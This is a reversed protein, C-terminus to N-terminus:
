SSSTRSEQTFWGVLAAIFAFLALVLFLAIVAHNMAVVQLDINSVQYLAGTLREGFGADVMMEAIDPHLDGGRIILGYVYTVFAGLGAVAFLGAGRAVMNNIGSAVGSSHDDVSNLIATSIPSAIGGIGLGLMVMSPLLGLWYEQKAVAYAIALFSFGVVLSGAVLLERGGFRDMVRGVLPSAFAITLSFPVFMGGAFTPPLKWAVIVLMPLFFFTAGMGAWVLFTLLNGGSFARSRFLSLDVMPIRGQKKVRIEWAIAGGGVVLGGIVLWLGFPEQIFTLGVAILGLATTLFVAGVWDLEASRDKRAIDTPIKRLVWMVVLAIPLNLAFIWRWVGEGGYTLFLGGLFPGAATTISSASVWLGMAKGRENRPTNLAILAMSGPLMIAAGIGQLGRFIILSYITPALACALSALCFWGVGFSFVRKVGLRDGMAGGLLIFATLFLMYANSIWQAGIFDAGLSARMQPLAVAVVSLDIYGMASALIAAILVFKRKEPPCYHAPSDAM